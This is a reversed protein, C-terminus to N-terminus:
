SRFYLPDALVTFNSLFVNYKIKKRTDCGVPALFVNNSLLGDLSEIGFRLYQSITRHVGIFFIYIILDSCM